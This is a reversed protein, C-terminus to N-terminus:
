AGHEEILWTRFKEFNWKKSDNHDIIHEVSVRPGDDDMGFIADLFFQPVTTNSSFRYNYPAGDERVTLDIEYNWVPTGSETYAHVWDGIGAVVLQDAIIGMFCHTRYGAPNEGRLKAFAQKSGAYGPCTDILKALDTATPLKELWEEPVSVISEEAYYDWEFDAM